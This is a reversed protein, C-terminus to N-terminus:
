LLLRQKAVLNHENAAIAITRVTDIRYGCMKSHQSKSQEEFCRAGVINYQM